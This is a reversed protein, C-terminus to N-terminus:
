AVPPAQGAARVRTAARQASVGGVPVWARRQLTLWSDGRRVGRVGDGKEGIGQKEGLGEIEMKGDREALRGRGELQRKSGEEGGGSVQINGDGKKAWPGPSLGHKSREPVSPISSAWDTGAGGAGVGDTM